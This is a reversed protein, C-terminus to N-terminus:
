RPPRDTGDREPIVWLVVQVGPGGVRTDMFSYYADLNLSITPTLKELISGVHARRNVWGIGRSGELTAEVYFWAKRKAKGSPSLMLAVAEEISLELGRAFNVDNFPDYEAWARSRTWGTTRSYLWWLDTRVNLEARLRGLPRLMFQRTGEPRDAPIFWGPEAAGQANLVLLGDLLTFRAKAQAEYWFFFIGAGPGVELDGRRDAEFWLDGWLGLGAPNTRAGVMAEPWPGRKRVPGDTAAEPPEAM